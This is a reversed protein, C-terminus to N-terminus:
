LVVSRTSSNCCVKRQLPNPDTIGLASLRDLVAEPLKGNYEGRFSRGEM